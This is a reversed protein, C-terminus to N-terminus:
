GLIWLSWAGMVGLWVGSVVVKGLGQGLGWKSKSTEGNTMTVVVRGQSTAAPRDTAGADAGEPEAPSTRPYPHTPSTPCARVSTSSPKAM